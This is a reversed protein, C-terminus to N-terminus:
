VEEIGPGDIEMYTSGDAPDKWHGSKSDRVLRHGSKGVWAFHHAPVGLVLSFPLVDRTGVSGAAVMSWRGIAVPAICVAGAGISAGEHIVVGESVWDSARKLEGSPTVARPVHDNTCIVGPGVFVSDGISAPSFILAENQVKCRDGLVVGSDLYVGGGIICDLGTAVGSRLHSRSWVQTGAGLRVGEEVLAQHHIFTEM